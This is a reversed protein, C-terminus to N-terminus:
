YLEDVCLVKMECVLYCSIVREALFSIARRQYMVDGYRFDRVAKDTYLQPTMNLGNRKDYAFLIPFLFDCLRNFDEWRMVFSCFPVFTKSELMYRSHKNGVGYQENLIDVIDYFDQYNHWTKYHLFVHCNHNIALAQCTGEGVDLVERFMRRYHCFGVRNSKVGNKWVWYLTVLESYFENLYNINEGEMATDRGYFLHHTDDEQLGFQEIQKPDHYTIWITLDKM